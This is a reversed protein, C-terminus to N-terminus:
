ERPLFWLAGFSQSHRRELSVSIYGDEEPQGTWIRHNTVIKRLNHCQAIMSRVNEPGLAKHVVHEVHTDVDVITHLTKSLSLSMTFPPLEKMPIAVHLVELHICNECIEAISDRSVGCDLFAVRRLSHGYNETLQKTFTEGVIIKRDPLRLTFSHLAPSSLKLHDLVTSLVAPSPSPQMSIRADFALHRLHSLPPPPTTLPRSAESITLSLSELLPTQSAQRLVVFHDLKPCGVVHLGILNPLHAMTSQFISEHLENIMYLTLTTLTSSVTEAWTPLLDVVSWSAFELALSKLGAFKLLTKSQEMTLHANIRVNELREKDQLSPLIMPLINPITCRFTRLNKCLGLALRTERVFNPNLHSKMVTVVARIEINRVHVALQPHAILVAFPSKTEESDYGKMQRIRYSISDYLRPIVGALFSRSVLAVSPLDNGSLFCFILELVDLNLNDASVM